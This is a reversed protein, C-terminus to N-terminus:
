HRKAKSSSASSPPSPSRRKRDSRTSSESRHTCEQARHSGACLNCRHAFRCHAYLSSCRGRNWSRCVIQSSPAGTAEPSEVGTGTPGPRISAGAAHFNFLEVNMSSWDTLGTAAVHQRFAQDYALWVRGSFHRYTRLILLKYSTLDKWRHPFSSTVILSFITFAECWSAIDEIKRRHRKPSPQVVLRGDLYVQSEPERQVINVSLLDSLDVYKGAVIQSVTKAPIPSFGPGVVFPQQLLPVSFGLGSSTAFSSTALSVGGTCASSAVSYPSAFTSLFSPVSLTPRGQSGPTLSSSTVSPFVGGNALFSSTRSGFGVSQVPVGGAFSSAMNLVHSSLPPSPSASPSPTNEAALAAKVASAVAAVFVPDLAQQSSTQSVSSTSNAASSSVLPGSYSPSCSTGLAPSAESFLGASLSNNTSRSAGSTM